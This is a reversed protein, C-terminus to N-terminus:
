RGRSCGRLLPSLTAALTPAVSGRPVVGCSRPFPRRHHHLFGVKRQFLGAHAPFATSPLPVCGAWRFVGRTRPFAIASRPVIRASPFLGAYAPFLCRSHLAQHQQRSCGRVHPSFHRETATCPRGQPAVGCMRPFTLFGLSCQRLGPFLGACAPFPTRAPPNAWYTRFLGAHAPFIWRCHRPCLSSRSCGQM